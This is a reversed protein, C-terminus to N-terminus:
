EREILQQIVHGAMMLGILGPLYSITGNVSRPQAEKGDRYIAIHQSGKVPVETSFVVPYNLNGRQKKVARRMNKALPCTHTKKLTTITCQSADIRGGAGMASIVPINLQQAAIVLAAKCKISDICDIVYDFRSASLLENVNEVSIFGDITHMSIAPNIDKIRDAMIDVKKEDITSHLAVLQRNINSPDVRDHDILTITQIGARAIAEAVFSGVGGLGAILIHTNSLQQHTDVGLLLQSREHIVDNNDM